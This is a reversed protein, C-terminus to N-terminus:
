RSRLVRVERGARRGHEVDDHPQIADHDPGAGRCVRHISISRSRDRLAGRHELHRGEVHHRAGRPRRARLAGDRPGPALAGRDGDRVRDGHPRPGDRGRRRGRVDHQALGNRLRARGATGAGARDVSSPLDWRPSSVTQHRTLRRSEQQRPPRKGDEREAGSFLPRSHRHSARSRVRPEGRGAGAEARV